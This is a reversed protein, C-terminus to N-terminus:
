WSAERAALDTVSRRAADVLRPHAAQLAAALRAESARAREAEREEIVLLVAPRILRAILRTLATM